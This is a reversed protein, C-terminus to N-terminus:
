PVAAYEKTANQFFRLMGRRHALSKLPRSFLPALFQIVQEEIQSAAPAELSGQFDWGDLAGASVGPVPGYGALRAFQAVFAARVTEPDRRELAALARVLLDFKEEHPQLLPTLRDAVECLFLASTLRTWDRRFGPHGDVGGGGTVRGAASGAPLWLRFRSHVSPETAASLKGGPRLAGAARATLRGLERTFLTVRRDRESVTEAALM